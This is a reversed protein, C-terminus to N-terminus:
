NLKTWNVLTKVKSMLEVELQTTEQISQTNQSPNTSKTKLQQVVVKHFEELVQFDQIDMQPRLIELIAPICRGPIIL